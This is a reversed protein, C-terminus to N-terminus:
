EAAETVAETIAETTAEDESQTELNSQTTEATEAQTSEPIDSSDVHFDTFVIKLELNPMSFESLGGSNDLKLTYKGQQTEGEIIMLGEKETAEIEPLDATSDAVDIFTSIISKIPLATKPVSFSLGKYSADVKDDRYSLIVGSLTNPSSFEIDWNAKSYKRFSADSEQDGYQIKATVVFPENLKPSFKVNKGGSSCACMSIILFVSLFIPIIKKM